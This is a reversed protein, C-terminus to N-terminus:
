GDGQLNRRPRRQVMLVTQSLETNKDGAGTHVKGVAVGNVAQLQMGRASVNGVGSRQMPLSEGKRPHAYNM